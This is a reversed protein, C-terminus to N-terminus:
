RHAFIRVKQNEWLFLHIKISKRSGSERRRLSWSAFCSMFVDFFVGLLCSCKHKKKSKQQEQTEWAAHGFFVGFNSGPARGLAEPSSGPVRFDIM